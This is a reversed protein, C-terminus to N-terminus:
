IINILMKKNMTKKDPVLCGINKLLIDNYPFYDKMACIIFIIMKFIITATNKM